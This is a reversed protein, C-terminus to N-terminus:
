ANGVVGARRLVEPVRHLETAKDLTWAQQRGAAGARLKDTAVSTCLVLAGDYGAQRVATALSLGDLGPMLLDAVIGDPPANRRLWDVAQLGDACTDVECGSSKVLGMLLGRLVKDDDVVLVHPKAGQPRPVRALWPLPPSVNVAQAALVEPALFFQAWAKETAPWAREFMRRLDAVTQPRHSPNRAIAGLVCEEMEPPLWAGGPLSTPKVPVTQTVVQLLDQLNLATYPLEGALLEYLVVGFSYIDARRDVTQGTLAEPAMTSVSGFVRSATSRYNGRRVAQGDSTMVPRTLLALGFDLLKVCFGEPRTPDDALFLNEAKVDRHVMGKDHAAGLASLTQDVIAAMELVSFQRGGDLNQALDKGALFEMAMFYGIGPEHGHDLVRVINPHQLVALAAVEQQFRGVMDADLARNPSLLKIAAAMPMREHQARYVTGFGGAGLKEVLRFTGGIVAGVLPDAAVMAQLPAGDQGCFKLQDPYQTQCTPCIKM